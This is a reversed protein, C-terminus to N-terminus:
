LKHLINKKRSKKKTFVYECFFVLLDLFCFFFLLLFIHKYIYIHIVIKCLQPEIIIEDLVKTM